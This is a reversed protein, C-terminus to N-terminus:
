ALEIRLDGSAAEAGSRAPWIVIAPSLAIGAKAQEREPLANGQPLLGSSLAQAYGEPLGQARMKAQAALYDYTLAAHEIRVAGREPTLVSYWARPTGDNAPMGLAGSNHWVANGVHRTFPIGCHGAVVVDAGAAALEQRFVNDDDSPYIFRNIQHVGGHVVRVKLGAMTFTLQHPLNGMWRRQEPSVQADAHAYWGKALTGCLTAEDYGCACDAANAALQEEVNGQIARAGSRMLLDACAAPDAAYAVVDGTHVIHSPSIGRREAEQLLATLAELNSYAGGCILVPDSFEGLQKPIM